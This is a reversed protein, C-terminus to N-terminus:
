DDDEVELDDFEDGAAPRAVPLAPTRERLEWASAPAVQELRSAARRAVEETTQTICYVASPSYFQTVDGTELPVDIRILKAGAITAESLKGAMRRRGMLELIAWGEFTAEDTMHEEDASVGAGGVYEALYAARLQQELDSTPPYTVLVYGLYDRAAALEALLAAGPREAALAVRIATCQDSHPRPAGTRWVSPCRLSCVDEQAQQLMQRLVAADAESEELRMPEIGRVTLYESVRQQLEGLLSEASLARRRWYDDHADLASM